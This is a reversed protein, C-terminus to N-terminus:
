SVQEESYAPLPHIAASPISAVAGADVRQTHPNIQNAHKHMMDIAVLAAGSIIYSNYDRAIVFVTAVLAASSWAAVKRAHEANPEDPQAMRVDALSPLANQYILFVGAATLLGTMTAGDPGRLRSKM